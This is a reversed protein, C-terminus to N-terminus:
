RIKIGLVIPVWRLRNSATSGFFDRFQVNDDQDAFINVLRSEIYVASTGVAWDVGAGVQAGFKNRTEKNAPENSQLVDNGLYGGLATRGGYSRFHYLGGGGVGYLNVNRILPVQATLNLTASFVTPNVNTLTVPTGNDTGLFTGAGFRNYGLDMRVGFLSNERHWGIPVDVTLGSNYGLDQFVATPAAAGVALGMYWGNAGLRYRALYQRRAEEVRAISDARAISDRRAAEVRAISDARMREVRAISDARAREITALSDRTRQAAMDISDRRAREAAAISDLRMQERTSRATTPTRKQVPVRQDSRVQMTTDRRTTDQQAVLSGPIILTAACAATILSRSTRM